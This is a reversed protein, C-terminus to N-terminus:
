ARALRERLWERAETWDGEVTRKSVGLYDAVEAVTMGAYFRLEVIQAQRANQGALEELADDLALLEDVELGAKMAPTLVENLTVRFQDGGRKVRGRSRAHDILLRRMVKAGVALFHTRGGWEVRTQDALKM